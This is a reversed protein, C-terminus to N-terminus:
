IKEGIANEYVEYITDIGKSASPKFGVDITDNSETFSLDKLVSDVYIDYANLDESLTVESLRTIEDSKEKIEIVLRNNKELSLLLEKDRELMERKTQEIVIQQEKIEVTMKHYVSVVYTLLLVIIGSIAMNM